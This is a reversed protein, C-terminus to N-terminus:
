PPPADLTVRDGDLAIAAASARVNGGNNGETTSSAMLLQQDAIRRMISEQTPEGRGHRVICAVKTLHMAYIMAASACAQGLTYCIDAQAEISAGVGGFDIPIAFGSCASAGCPRWPKPRSVATRTSRLPM